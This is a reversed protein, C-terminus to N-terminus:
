GTSAAIGSRGATARLLAERLTDIRFPKAVFGAFGESLAREREGNSWLGTVAIIPVTALAPFHRMRRAIEFGNLDPLLLDMLVVDPHLTTALSLGTGGDRARVVEHGDYTLVREVLRFNLEDDEVYLVRM